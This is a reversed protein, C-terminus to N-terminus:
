RDVFIEGLIQPVKLKLECKFLEIWNTSPGICRSGIEMPVERGIEEDDEFKYLPEM